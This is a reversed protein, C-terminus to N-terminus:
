FFKFCWAATSERRSSKQKSLRMKKTEKVLQNMCEDMYENIFSKGVSFINKPGAWTRTPV